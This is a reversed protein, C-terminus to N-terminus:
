QFANGGGYIRALVNKVYETTEQYPPIGGYSDVASPGANYAALALALNGSYKRLLWSLYRTGATVNETPDWPNAVGLDNATQPMIQMLGMAGKSSRALPDYGSEVEIVSKVIVPNLGYSKAVTSILGEYQAPSSKRRPKAYSAYRYQRRNERAYLKWDEGTPCNSFHLTGDPGRRMYIDAHLSGLPFVTGACVLCAVVIFVRNMDWRITM